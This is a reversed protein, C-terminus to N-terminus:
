MYYLFNSQPKKGETSYQIIYCLKWKKWDILYPINKEIVRVLVNYVLSVVPFCQVNVGVASCNFNVGPFDLKMSNIGASCAERNLFRQHTSSKIRGSLRFLRWTYIFPKLPHCNPLSIVSGPLLINSDNSWVFTTCSLNPHHHSM